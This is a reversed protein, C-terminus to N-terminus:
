SYCTIIVVFNQNGYTSIGDVHVEVVAIALPPQPAVGVTDCSVLETEQPAQAYQQQQQPQQQPRCPRCLYNSLIVIGLLVGVVAISIGIIVGASM